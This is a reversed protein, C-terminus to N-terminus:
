LSRAVLSLHNHLVILYLLHQEQARACQLNALSTFKVVGTRLGEFGQLFLSDLGNQNIGINGRYLGGLSHSVLNVKEGHCGIEHFFDDGFLTRIANHQRESSLRGQVAAHCEIFLPHQCLIIHLYEAGRYLRNNIGFVAFEEHLPEIFDVYLRNLTLSHLIGLIGATGSRCQSIGDNHTGCVSKASQATSEAVILPLEVEQHLFGEAEGRLNQNLLRQTSPFLHFILHHAVPKIVADGDAIHLVKVRQTDM